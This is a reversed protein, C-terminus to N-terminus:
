GHRQCSHTEKRSATGPPHDPPLPTGQLLEVLHKGVRPTNPQPLSCFISMPRVPAPCDWCSFAAPVMHPLPMVYEGCASPVLVAGGWCEQHKQGTGLIISSRSSELLRCQWTCVREPPMFLFSDTAMAKTPPDRATIKSSGVAPTSGYARLAMQSRM